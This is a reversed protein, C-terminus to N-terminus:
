NSFFLEERQDLKQTDPCFYEEGEPEVRYIKWTGGIEELYKEFTGSSYCDDMEERFSGTIVLTEGDGELRYGIDWFELSYHDYAVGLDKLWELYNEKSRENHHYVTPALYPEIANNEQFITENYAGIIKEVEKKLPEEVEEVYATAVQVMRPAGDAYWLDGDDEPPLRLDKIKKDDGIRDELAEKIDEKSAEPKITIEQPSLVEENDETAIYVTLTNSGLREDLEEVLIKLSEKAMEKTLMRQIELYVSPTISKIAIYSGITIGGVVTVAKVAGLVGLGVPVTVLAQTEAKGDKRLDEPLERVAIEPLYDDNPDFAMVTIKEDGIYGTINMGEPIETDGEETIAQTEVEINADTESPELTTKGDDEVKGSTRESELNFVIENEGSVEVERPDFIYGEKEATLEVNGSLGTLKWKGDENTTAYEAVDEPVIRVNEIGENEFDVVEGSVTFSETTEDEFLDCASLTVTLSLILVLISIFKLKHLNM